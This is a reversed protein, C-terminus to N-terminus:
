QSNTKDLCWELVQVHASIKSYVGHKAGPATEHSPPRHGVPGASLLVRSVGVETTHKSSEKFVTLFESNKMKQEHYLSSCRCLFVFWNHSSDSSPHWSFHCEPSYHHCHFWILSIEFIEQQWESIRLLISCPVECTWRISPGM